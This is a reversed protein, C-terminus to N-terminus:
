FTAFHATQFPQDAKHHEHGLHTLSELKYPTMYALVELASAGLVTMHKSNCCFMLQEMLLCTSMSLDANDLTLGRACRCFCALHNVSTAGVLMRLHQCTCTM